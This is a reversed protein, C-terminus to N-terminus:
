SKEIIEKYYDILEKVVYEPKLKETRIYAKEEIEKKHRKNLALTKEITYLLNEPNAPECLFGNVNNDILQESSTGNTAVVIKKFAMAEIVTNSLNEIRSPLVVCYANQIIPYLKDHTINKYYIVRDKYKGAKEIIYNIVPKDKYQKDKGIFVFYISKHKGILKYIMDAIDITGKWLGLRGFYLIYKHAKIKTKIEDYIKFDYQTTELLFPTEIVKIKKKGAKHPYIEKELYKALMNSPAYVANSHKLTWKELIQTQRQRFTKLYIDNAENILKLYSVVTTVSPIRKPKFFSTSQLTSYHIIDIKKIKNIYKVEKNLCYSQLLRDLVQQYKFHTLKDALKYWFNPKVLIRHLEINKHFLIQNKDSKVVVIPEHGMNKLSLAIKHFRNSLGGDFSKQETVYETTVLVVRM